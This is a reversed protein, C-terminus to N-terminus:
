GVGPARRVAELFNQQWVWDPWHRHGETREGGSLFEAFTVNAGMRLSRSWWYKLAARQALRYSWGIVFISGVLGQCFIMGWFLKIPFSVFRSLRSLRQPREAIVPPGACAIDGGPVPQATSNMGM